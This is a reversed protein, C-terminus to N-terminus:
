FDFAGVYAMAGAAAAVLLTVVQWIRRFRTTRLLFNLSVCGVLLLLGGILIASSGDFRKLGSSYGGGLIIHRRSIAMLGINFFLATGGLGFLWEFWYPRNGSNM